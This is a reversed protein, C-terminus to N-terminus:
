VLPPIIYNIPLIHFVVNWVHRDWLDHYGRGGEHFYCHDTGDFQNLGDAVNKSAHSHVVDLLVVMGLRHAEDILERLEDPTGLKMVCHTPLPTLVLEVFWYVPLFTTLLVMDAPHLLFTQLKIDLPPM